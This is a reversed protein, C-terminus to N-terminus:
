EENKITKKLKYIAWNFRIIFFVLLTFMNFVLVYFFSLNFIFLIALILVTYNIYTAWVLSELRIKSIFEDEMKEKSLAIFILSVILILWLIEDFANTETMQFFLNDSSFGTNAFGFFSDSIAFVKVYLWDLKFNFVLQLIGLIFGPIFLFWGIKKFKNPLLYSTKM